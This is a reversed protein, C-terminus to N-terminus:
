RNGRRTMTCTQAKGWKDWTRKDGGPLGSFGDGNM